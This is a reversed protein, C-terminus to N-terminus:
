SAAPPSMLRRFEDETRQIPISPLFHVVADFTEAIRRDDTSGTKPSANAM